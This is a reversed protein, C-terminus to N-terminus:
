KVLVPWILDVPLGPISYDIVDFGATFDLLVTGVLEKNDM